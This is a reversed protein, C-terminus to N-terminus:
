MVPRHRPTSRRRPWFSRILQRRIVTSCSRQSGLGRMMWGQGLWRKATRWGLHSGPAPIGCAPIQAPPAHWCADRGRYFASTVAALLVVIKPPAKLGVDLSVTCLVPRHQRWFPLLRQLRFPEFIRVADTWRGPRPFRAANERQAPFSLRKM